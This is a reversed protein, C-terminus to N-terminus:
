WFCVFACFIRCAFVKLRWFISVLSSITNKLAIVGPNSILIATGIPNLMPSERGVVRRNAIGPIVTGPAIASATRPGKDVQTIFFDCRRFIKKVFSKSLVLFFCEFFKPFNPAINKIRKTANGIGPLPLTPPAM